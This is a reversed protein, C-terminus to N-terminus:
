SSHKKPNDFMDAVLKKMAALAKHRDAKYESKFNFKKHQGAYVAKDYNICLGPNLKM